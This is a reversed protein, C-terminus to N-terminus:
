TPVAHLSPLYLLGPLYLLSPLSLFSLLRPLYPSAYVQVIPCTGKSTTIYSSMMLGYLFVKISSIPHAWTYGMCMCTCVYMCVYMCVYLCVYTCVCLYMRVYTCVYMSVYTHVYIEYPLFNGIYWDYSTYQIIIIDLLMQCLAHMPLSILVRCPKQTHDKTAHVCHFTLFTIPNQSFGAEVCVVALCLKVM